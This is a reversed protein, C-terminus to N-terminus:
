WLVVALFTLVFLLIKTWPKAFPEFDSTSTVSYHFFWRNKLSNLGGDYLIWWCAGIFLSIRAALWFEFLNITTFLVVSAWGLWQAWHWLRGFHKAAAGFDNLLCHQEKERYYNEYLNSIFFVVLFIVFLTM